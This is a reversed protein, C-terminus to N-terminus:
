RAAEVRDLAALVSTVPLHKMSYKGDRAPAQVAFNRETDRHWNEMSTPGFLTLSPVGFAQALHSAAGDVTLIARARSCLWLFERLSTGSSLSEVLSVASDTIERCHALQWDISTSTMLLRADFQLRAARLVEVWRDARWMKQKWGSTPNILVFPANSFGAPRWEEPPRALRPLRFAEKAPVPTHQWFYEAVYEARLEPIIPSGFVLPHYWAMEARAPLIAVKRAAPTILSRWASKSKPDYCYLHSRWALPYGPQYEASAMLELLPEHGSRTIVAVPAGHHAHLKALTPELLLLDGLQKHFVVYCGSM